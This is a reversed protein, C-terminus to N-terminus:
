PVGRITGSGLLRRGFRDLAKFGRNGADIASRRLIGSGALTAPQRATIM